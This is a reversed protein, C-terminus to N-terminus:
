RLIGAQFTSFYLPSRVETTAILSEVMPMQLSCPLVPGPILRALIARLFRLTLIIRVGPPSVIVEKTSYLEYGAADPSGKTRFIADNSFRSFDIRM